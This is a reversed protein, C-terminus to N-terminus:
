LQSAVPKEVSGAVFLCLHNILGVGWDENAKRHEYRDCRRPENEIDSNFCFEM